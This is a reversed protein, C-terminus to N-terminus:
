TCLCRYKGSQWSQSKKEDTYWFSLDKRECYFSGVFSVIRDVFIDYALKAKEYQSQNNEKLHPSHRRMEVIKRFDSTDALGLFGSQTNLILEAKNVLSLPLDAHEKARSNTSAEQDLDLCIHYSLVPDVSGSRTSSPLGDLPTIGMSTDLSKGRKILCISAGSGLHAVILNTDEQKKNLYSSVTSAIYSYSLGHFGWKRLQMDKTLRSEVRKSDIAYTYIEKPISRHFANDFCCVNPIGPFEQLCNKILRVAATNHLPAFETLAELRSIQDGERSKITM